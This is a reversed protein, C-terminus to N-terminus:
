STIDPNNIYSNLYNYSFILLKHHVGNMSKNGGQDLLQEKSGANTWSVTFVHNYDSFLQLGSSLCPFFSSM